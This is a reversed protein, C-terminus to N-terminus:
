KTLPTQVPQNGMQQHLGYMYPQPQLTPAWTSPQFRNHQQFTHPAMPTAPVTTPNSPTTSTSSNSSPVNQHGSLTNQHNINDINVAHRNLNHHYGHCKFYLSKFKDIHKEKIKSHRHDKIKNFFLRSKELYLDPDQVHQNSNFLMDKFKRYQTQRQKDLSELTNNINRVREYLLQKEVKHIINYSKKTKLPNKLKCSVPTISAKICRLMFRRHNRYDAMKKITIEWKRISRVGEEGYKTRLDSILNSDKDTYM